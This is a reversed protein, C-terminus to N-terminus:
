NKCSHAKSDNYLKSSPCSPNHIRTGLDPGSLQRGMLPLHPAPRYNGDTLSDMVPSVCNDKTSSTAGASLLTLIVWSIILFIHSIKGRNKTDSHNALVAAEESSGESWRPCTVAPSRVNSQDSSFVPSQRQDLMARIVQEFSILWNQPRWM